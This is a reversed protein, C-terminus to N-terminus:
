GCGSEPTARHRGRDADPELLHADPVAIEREGRRRHLEHEIFAADAPADGDADAAGIGRGRATGGGFRAKDAGPQFVLSM